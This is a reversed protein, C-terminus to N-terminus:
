IDPEGGGDPQQQGEDVAAEIRWQRGSRFRAIRALARQGGGHYQRSGHAHERQKLVIVGQMAFHRGLVHCGRRLAIERGAHRGVVPGRIATGAIAVAIRRGRLDRRGVRRLQFLCPHVVRAVELARVIRALDGVFDRRQFHVAHQVQARRMVDDDRQVRVRALLDPAVIRLDVAVCRGVLVHDAAADGVPVDVRAAGLAIRCGLRGAHFARAADECGGHIGGQDGHVRIRPYGAFAKAFIAHDAQVM